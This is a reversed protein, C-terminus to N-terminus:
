KLLYVKVDQMGFQRLEAQTGDIYIDIRNGKILGGTDEATAVFGGAPLLPSNYGTVWVKSGLPIVNPDVAIVGERVKTGTFTHGGWQWMINGPGYASATASLQKSYAVGAITPAAPKAEVPKAEAPAPAAPAPPPTPRAATPATVATAADKLQQSPKQVPAPAAPAEQKVAEKAAPAEQLVPAKAEVAPATEQKGVPITITQGATLESSQLGNLTKIDEVTTHYRDALFWMEDGADVKYALAVNLQQGAQIQDTTLGNAYKWESVDTGYQAAVESLSQGHKVTVPGVSSMAAAEAAQTNSFLILGSAVLAGAVIKKWNKMM